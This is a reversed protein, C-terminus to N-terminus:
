VNTSKKFLSQHAWFDMVKKNANRDGIRLAPPSLDTRQGIYQELPNDTGEGMFNPPRHELGVLVATM